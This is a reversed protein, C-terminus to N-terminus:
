EKKFIEKKQVSLASKLSKCPNKLKEYYKDLMKVNNKRDVTGSENDTYKLWDYMLDNFYKKGEETLTREYVIYSRRLSGDHDFPNDNFMGKKSCFRLLNACMIKRNEKDHQRLQANVLYQFDFLILEKPYLCKIENM